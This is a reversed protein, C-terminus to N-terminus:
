GLLWFPPNCLRRKLKHRCFAICLTRIVELGRRVGEEKPPVEKLIPPRGERCAGEVYCYRLEGFFRSRVISGWLADCSDSWLIHEVYRAGRLVVAIYPCCPAFRDIVLIRAERKM